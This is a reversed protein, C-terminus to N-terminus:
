STKSNTGRYNATSWKAETAALDATWDGDEGQSAVVGYASEVFCELV